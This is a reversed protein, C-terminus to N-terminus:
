SRDDLGRGCEPCRHDMVPNSLHEDDLEFFIRHRDRGSVKLVHGCQTCTFRQRAASLVSLEEADNGAGDQPAEVDQRAEVVDHPIATAM